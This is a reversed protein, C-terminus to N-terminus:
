AIIKLDIPRPDIMLLEAGASLPMAADMIYQIGAPEESRHLSDIDVAIVGPTNQMCAVVESYTVAQGFQRAEFSFATRLNKEVAALVTGTMYDSDIKLRASVVFFRPIFSDITLAVKPDGAKQIAALLKNYLDGNKPVEAGGEGAVTLFVHRKGHKWTWSAISKQIGAFARAFDEYDKLSVVRDLTLITLSANARANDLTEPDEAGSAAVPNIASKVGLPRALLQSLQNAKVMGGGGIGKRYTARVNEQGTPLRAGNIGDGFIVTTKGDNDRRTIYIREHPGRDLFHDAEHWLLGNVRVELTSQTGTPTGASVHTLPPQKLTFRQFPISADGSGLVEETTEGHTARAVNANITVTKRIYSFSLSQVFTLETIGQVVNVEKLILLESGVVGRLDDREGSLIVPQGVALGPYYRDLMLSDGAVLDEVPLEALELKESQALVTISRIGSLKNDPGHWNASSGAFPAITLRTSKTSIGYATRPTANANSVKYFGLTQSANAPNQVAIQSGPLIEEYAADLYITDDDENLNWDVYSTPQKPVGNQYEIQKPANYGFVQVRKRFVFVGIDEAAAAVPQPTNISRFFDHASWRNARVIVSLDAERWKVAAINNVVHQKLVVPTLFNAFLGAPALAKQYAPLTASSALNVRTTQAQTDVTVDFVTKLLSSGANERVLLVDGKKLNTSIGKFLMVHPSYPSQPQLLKPKINNWVARADIHEVTEFTQPKEGPGPVSQVKVGKAISIPPLGEQLKVLDNPAIVPGLGGPADELTFAIYTTAAVGPRLEYGILRALELLSFREKATRLYSENAIREQYFTLVDAVVSWADLLAISFDDQGRTTLGQLAPQGSLSLRALLSKRFDAHTGVRYAIANLGARNDLQLPTQVALGECCNCSNHDAM